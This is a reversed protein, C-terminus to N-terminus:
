ILQNWLFNPWSGLALILVATKPTLYLSIEDDHLITLCCDRSIALPTRTMTPSIIQYDICHHKDPPWLNAMYSPNSRSSTISSPSESSAPHSKIFLHTKLKSLFTSKSILNTWLSDSDKSCRLEAPLTGCCYLLRTDSLNSKNNIKSFLSKDRKQKIKGKLKENIWNLLCLYKNM